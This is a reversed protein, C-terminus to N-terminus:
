RRSRDRDMEPKWVYKGGTVDYDSGIWKRKLEEAQPTATMRFLYLKGKEDRKEFCLISYFIAGPAEGIVIEMPYKQGERVDLWPGCTLHWGPARGPYTQLTDPHTKGEGYLNGQKSRPLVGGFDLANKRDWRVAMLDDTSGVFRFKGTFPATVVGKYHVIWNSPAAPVNFAQPAGAAGMTPILLQSVVLRQPAHFATRELYAVDWKRRFFERVENMYRGTNYGRQEKKPGQKFDYFTGVLGATRFDSRGFLSVLNRGNGKGPGIGGGEGGGAGGGLGKSAAGLPNGSELANLSVNPLEPLAISSAGKATLKPLSKVLSRANKPKIRHESMSIKEGQNGGGAGTTFDEPTSTIIFTRFVWFIAFLIFITFLGVAVLFGEVGFKNWFRRRRIVAPDEEPFPEAAVPPFDAFPPAEQPPVPPLPPFANNSTNNM